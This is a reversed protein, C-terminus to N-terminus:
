LWINTLENNAKDNLNISDEIEMFILSSENISKYEISNVILFDKKLKEDSYEETGNVERIINGTPISLILYRKGCNKLQRYERTTNINIISIIGNKYFEKIRDMYLYYTYKMKELSYNIISNESKELVDEKLIIIQKEVANIGTHINTLYNNLSAGSVSSLKESIEISSRNGLGKVIYHKPIEERRHMSVIQDIIIRGIYEMRDNIFLKNVEKMKERNKFKDQFMIFGLPNSDLLRKGIKLIIEDSFEVGFESMEQLIKNFNYLDTKENILLKIFYNYKNNLISSIVVKGIKEANESDNWLCHILLLVDSEDVEERGNTYASVKLLKIIKVLRRDSIEEVSNEKFEEKFQKRIDEILKKIRDPIIISKLGYKIQAIEEITIKDKDSVISEEGAIDILELISNDSVYGVVKRVLFRDYLAKLSEDNLPLENSAGVLSILPVDEKKNGNHFKKENIITLLSNLIASNAKFIEDLFTIKATPMYGETNRKFKDEKLEKISLPGFIEEPTTFKTLLYEFYSDDKVAQAMRRSIESKATGPPGVLIINEQALMTLLAIKITDEREILGKNLEKILKLIKERM